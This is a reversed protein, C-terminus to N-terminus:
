GIPRSGMVGDEVWSFFAGTQTLSFQHGNHFLIQALMCVCILLRLVVCFCALLLCILVELGCLCVCPTFM